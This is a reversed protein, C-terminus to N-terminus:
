RKEEEIRRVPLARPAGPNVRDLEAGVVDHSSAAAVIM